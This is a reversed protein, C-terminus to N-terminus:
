PNPILILQTVLAPIVLFLVSTMDETYKKPGKFDKYM